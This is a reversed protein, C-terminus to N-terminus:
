ASGRARRGLFFTSWDGRSTRACVLVYLCIALSGLGMVAAVWAWSRLSGGDRFLIWAAFLIFAVYLDVLSVIGWTMGLLQRGDATFSGEVFGYVLVATMAVAGLCALVILIKMNDERQRQRRGM